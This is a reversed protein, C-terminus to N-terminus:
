AEDWVKRAFDVCYKADASFDELPCEASIRGRYGVEKLKKFFSRFDFGGDASAAKGPLLRDRDAIHVHGLAPAAEEILSLGDGCVLMHFSDTLLRINECGKARARKWLEYSERLGVIMNTEAGNLPEICLKVGYKAAYRDCLKLFDLLQAMAEGASVGEPRTRAGGSGFIIYEAGCAACRSLATKIYAEIKAAEAQPGVLKIHPPVFSCFVEIGRGEEALFARFDEFDEETLFAISVVNMEVFDCGGNFLARVGSKLADVGNGESIAAKAGSIQPVFSAGPLCCGFRM